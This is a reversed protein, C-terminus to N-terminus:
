LLLNPIQAVFPEYLEALEQALAAQEAQAEEYRPLWAAYQEAALTQQHKSRLRPLAARLRDRTLEAAVVAEHAARPDSTLDLAKLREDECRADAAALADDTEAFLETLATTTVTEDVLAAAIRQELDM